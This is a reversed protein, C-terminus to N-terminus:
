KNFGLEEKIDERAQRNSDITSYYSTPSIEQWAKDFESSTLTITREPITYKFSIDCVDKINVSEDPPIWETTLNIKSGLGNIKELDKFIFEIDKM